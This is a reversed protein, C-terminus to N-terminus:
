LTRDFLSRGTMEAPLPLGLLELLTPAVDCLSRGPRIKVARDADHVYLLPVLDDTRADRVQRTPAASPAGGRAHCATVVLAGGASRTGDVIGALAADFADIARITAISTAHGGARGIAAVDPIALNVLVFDHESGLIVDKATRAVAACSMEGRAAPAMANASSPHILHTEGEFPEERGANFLATVQLSQEPGRM